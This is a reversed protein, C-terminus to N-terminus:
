YRKGFYTVGSRPTFKILTCDTGKHIKNSLKIYIVKENNDYEWNPGELYETSSGIKNSFSLIYQNKFVLKDIDGESIGGRDHVVRDDIMITSSLISEVDSKDSQTGSGPREYLGSRTFHGISDLNCNFKYGRSMLDDMTFPMRKKQELLRRDEELMKKVNQDRQEDKYQSSFSQSFALGVNLFILASSLKITWSKLTM